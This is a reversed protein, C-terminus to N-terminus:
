LGWYRFRFEREFWCGFLFWSFRTMTIERKSPAM